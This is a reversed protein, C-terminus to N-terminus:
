SMVVGVCYGDGVNEEGRNLWFKFQVIEFGVVFRACGKVLWEM